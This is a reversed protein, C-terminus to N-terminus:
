AECEVTELEDSGTGRAPRRLALVLALALAAGLLAFVQWPARLPADGTDGSLSLVVAAAATGVSQGVFTTTWLVGSVVAHNERSVAHMAEKANPSGFMASGFGMIGQAALILGLLGWGPAHAGGPMAGHLLVGALLLALGGPIIKQAGWRDSWHGSLPGVVASVGVNALLLLGTAMPSLGLNRQLYFPLTFSVGAGAMRMIVRTVSGICVEPVTFLWPPLVPDAARREARVLLGFLVAAAALLPLVWGRNGDALAQLGLLLCALGSMLCLAGPWDLPLRKAKAKGVVEADFIWFGAALAAVGVPFNILFIWRWSAVHLILAGLSLGAAVGISFVTAGLGLALGHQNKPFVATIIANGSSLLFATGIATFARMAVLLWLTSALGSIVSAVTFVAFGLLYAPKRGMFDAGKGALPLAAACTVTYAVSVWQIEALGADLYLAMAPLALIVITADISCLLVGLEVVALVLWKNRAGNM